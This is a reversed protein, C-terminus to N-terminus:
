HVTVEGLRNIYYTYLPNHDGRAVPSVFVHGSLKSNSVRNNRVSHSPTLGTIETNLGPFDHVLEGKYIQGDIKNPM